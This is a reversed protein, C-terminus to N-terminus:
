QPRGESTTPKPSECAFAGVAEQSLKTLEPGEVDACHCHRSEIVAMSCVLGDMANALEAALLGGCRQCSM